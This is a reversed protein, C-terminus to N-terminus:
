VPGKQFVEQISGNTLGKSFSIKKRLFSIQSSVKNALDANTHQTLPSELFFDGRFFIGWEM